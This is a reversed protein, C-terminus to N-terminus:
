PQKAEEKEGETGPQQLLRHLGPALRWRRRRGRSCRPHRSSHEPRRPGPTTLLIGPLLCAGRRDTDWNTSAM